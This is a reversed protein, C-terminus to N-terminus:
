DTLFKEVIRLFAVPKEAHPWHGAGEILKAEANPFREMIAPQDDRTIYDSTMGKVFLTPQEFPAKFEPEAAIADYQNELAELNFRWALRGDERRYLSKLIFQRIGISEIGDKLAADVSRRDKHQALDIDKLARFIDGHHAKYARPAIDVVILKTIGQRHEGLAMQMAVKGGMSHGLLRYEDIRHERLWDAVAGAFIPYSQRDIWASRGHNPLDLLHVRFQKALSKGISRWNDGSGFLGHLIVLDPGQGLTESHLM